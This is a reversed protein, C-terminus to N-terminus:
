GATTISDGTTGAQQRKALRRLQPEITYRPDKAAELGAHLVGFRTLASGAMLALGSVVGVARHRALLAGVGGLAVMRESWKLLKGPTGTHLPEAATPDMNDEMIKTAALDCAAGAAALARVPGTETVPTTVLALGSAALTASSVFVYPLHDKAGNWTPNSTDAFLVATYVALPSGLLASGVGAPGAAKHLLTRLFGPLPLRQGTLDDIEPLAALGALSAFGGLIWSGMNMPSSLKFVRFMNLLREPRGLDVILAVSGVSAATFASLRANRRLLRRRSAHAGLALLSSGGAVGGLFLYVGIPSEWPPAKVVPRGYYSDFQMRPVMSAEFSGEARKGKKRPGQPPRYSDFQNTM